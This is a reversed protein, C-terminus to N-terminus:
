EETVEFEAAMDHHKLGCFELCSVLYTGPEDLSLELDNTYGPMAQVNGILQGTPNYVGFGHNVDAATVEFIVDSGAPVSKPDMTWYFQGGVVKVTASAAATDPRYPTFFLTVCVITGLVIALFALWLPRARYAAETVAELSMERGAQRAAFAFFLALSVAILAFVVAVAIQFGDYSPDLM